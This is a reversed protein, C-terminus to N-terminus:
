PPLTRYFADYAKASSELSFIKETRARGFAGMKQARARDQAIAAIAAGLALPDHPPVIAGSEGHTVAEANGGVDTAVVPLGCAMAELIANAFGEQHSPLVALDSAHLFRTVDVQEGLFRINKAIGLGEALSELESQLGDNRGICQLLWPQGLDPAIPALAALLDAHGKYAILNALITLVFANEEIGLARRTSGRESASAPAFHGTDVGNYILVVHDPDCGEETILQQRVRESNALIATMRNHLRPELKRALPHTQQYINLSRRSMVLAPTRALLALPAGTLYAAPLFFHAIKPRRIFLVAALKLASLTLGVAKLLRSSSALSLALPPAIVEVGAEEVSAAQSGRRGLCYIAPSWGLAKLKPATQAVHREAGGLDLSGIVFLLDLKERDSTPKM